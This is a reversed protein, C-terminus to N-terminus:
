KKISTVIAKDLGPYSELIAKRTAFLESQRQEFEAKSYLKEPQLLISEVGRVARPVKLGTAECIEWDELDGRLISELINVTDHLTIKHYHEGEGVGGTNLLYCDIHPNWKLIEHFLHAHEVRDGALFPDYFFVNKIKGAQTPDGASSEMSQGLVMFATAQWPSLKAVAPITPGRTIIFLNDVENVAIFRAAHMFDRREIVARGNSTREINFFDLGKDATVHVNELYADPKLAGYFTEIQESPTLGDTKAYIGGQEFGHFSGDRKLIGGDDQVLWSEEGINRALVRCTLSTKGNASLAVFLSTKTQMDGNSMQLTDRRCGSHLFIGERGLKARWDEGAFVGKKWEGLYSSNRVFKIMRGSEGLALRITIDKEPLVKSSNGAWAEDHFFIVQYTPDTVDNVRPGFLKLGGYAIHAFRRPVILRATVPTAEDRILVDLCILPQDQLNTVAQQLLDLEAQGFEDDINNRTFPKARSTPETIAVLNGYVTEFVDPEQLSIRRLRDPGPNHVIREDDAAQTYITRAAQEFQDFIHM